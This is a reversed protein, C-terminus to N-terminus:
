TKKNTKHKRVGQMKRRVVRTEPKELSKLVGNCRKKVSMCECLTKKPFCERAELTKQQFKPLIKRSGAVRANKTYRFGTVHLHCWPRDCAPAPALSRRRKDKLNLGQIASYHSRIRLFLNGLGIGNQFHGEPSRKKFWDKVKVIILLAGLDGNKMQIWWNNANQWRQRKM